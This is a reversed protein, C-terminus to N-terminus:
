PGSFPFSPNNIDPPGSNRGQIRIPPEGARNGSPNELFGFFGFFAQCLFKKKNLSDIAPLLLEDIKIMAKKGFMNYFTKNGAAPPLIEEWALFV